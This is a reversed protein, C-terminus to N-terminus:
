LPIAGKGRLPFAKPNRSLAFKRAYMVARERNYPRDLIM